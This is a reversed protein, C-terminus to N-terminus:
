CININIKNSEATSIACGKKTVKNLFITISLYFGFLILKM